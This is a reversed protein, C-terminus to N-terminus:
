HWLVTHPRADHISGVTRAAGLSSRRKLEFSQSQSATMLDSLWRYKKAKAVKRIKIGPSANFASFLSRLMLNYASHWHVCKHPCSTTYKFISDGTNQNLHLLYDDSAALSPQLFTPVRHSFVITLFEIRQNQNSCLLIRAVNFVVMKSKSFYKQVRM